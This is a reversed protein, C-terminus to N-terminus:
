TYCLLDTPSESLYPLVLIKRVFRIAHKIHWYQQMHWELDNCQASCSSCIHMYKHLTLLQMKWDEGSRNHQTTNTPKPLSVMLLVELQDNDSVVQLKNLLQSSRLKNLIVIIDWFFNPLIKPSLFPSLSLIKHNYIISYLHM